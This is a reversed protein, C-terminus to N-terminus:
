KKIDYAKKLNVIESLDNESLIKKRKFEELLEKDGFDDWTFDYIRYTLSFHELLKTLKPFAMSHIISGIKEEIFLSRTSDPRKAEEETPYKLFFDLLKEKVLERTREISDIMLGPLSDNAKKMEERIKQISEEFAARNEKKLVSKGERVTIPILYEKRIKEVNDKLTKIEKNKKLFDEDSVLKIRSQLLDKLAQDQIPLGKKPFKVLMNQIGGGGFKFEAMQIKANYTKIKRQLDPQVPPDAKLAELIKQFNENSFVTSEPSVGDNIESTLDHLRDKQQEFDRELREELKEKELINEPAFYYTILRTITFADVEIANPGPPIMADTFIRSEPYYIFGQNDVILFSIRNGKCEKIPIKNELLKQIGDAEGYGNRIAEESNDVCVNISVSKEKKISVLTEALVEDIGPLVIYICEEANNLKNFLMHWNISTIFPM